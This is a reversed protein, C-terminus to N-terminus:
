EKDIPPIGMTIACSSCLPENMGLWYLQAELGVGPGTHLWGHPFVEPDIFHQECKVCMWESCKTDEDDPYRNEFRDTVLSTQM